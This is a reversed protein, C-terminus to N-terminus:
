DPYAIDTVENNDVWYNTSTGDAHPLAINLVDWSMDGPIRHLVVANRHIGEVWGCDPPFPTHITGKHVQRTILASAYSTCLTTRPNVEVVSALRAMAPTAGLLAIALIVRKMFDGSCSIAM